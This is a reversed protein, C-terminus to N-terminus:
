FKSAWKYGQVKLSVHCLNVWIAIQVPSLNAYCKFIVKGKQQDSDFLDEMQNFQILIIAM